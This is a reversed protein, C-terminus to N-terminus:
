SNSSHKKLDYCIEGDKLNGLGSHTLVSGGASSKLRRIVDNESIELRDVLTKM